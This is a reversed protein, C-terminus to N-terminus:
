PQYEGQSIKIGRSPVYVGDEHIPEGTEGPTKGRKIAAMTRQRRELKEKEDALHYEMPKRLLYHRIPNGAKDTGAHREIRTGTGTNRGDDATQDDTVFDYDDHKTLQEVRGDRDAVWYYRYNPDNELHPPISLKLWARNGM